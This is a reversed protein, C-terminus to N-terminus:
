SRTAIGHKQEFAAVDILRIYAAREVLLAFDGFGWRM